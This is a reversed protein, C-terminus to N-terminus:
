SAQLTWMVKTLGRRRRIGLGEVKKPTTSPFDVFASFLGWPSM